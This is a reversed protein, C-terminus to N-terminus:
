ALSPRGEPKPQFKRYIQRACEVCADETEAIPVRHYSVIERVQELSEYVYANLVKTRYTWKFREILGNQDPKGSLYFIDSSM